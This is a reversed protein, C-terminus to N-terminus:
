KKRKPLTLPKLVEILNDNNNFVWPLDFTDVFGDGNLDTVLNGELLSDADNVVPVVDFADVFGDQNVDGVYFAFKGPQVEKMNNGNAKSIANTFDFTTSNSSIFQPTASWTEVSNRHKIVIYYNGSNINEFNAISTGNTNLAANTSAVLTNNTPNRLEITIDDVYNPNSGIGQNLKVPKMLGTTVDFYGELYLKINSIKLQIAHQLGFQLNGTTNSISSYDILGISYSFSGSTNSASEGASVISQQANSKLYFFM